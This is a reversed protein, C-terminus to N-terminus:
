VMGGKFYKKAIKVSSKKTKSRSKIKRRPRRPDGPELPVQEPFGGHWPRKKSWKYGSKAKM